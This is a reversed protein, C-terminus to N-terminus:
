TGSRGHLVSTDVDEPLDPTPVQIPARGYGYYQGYGDPATDGVVVLGATKAGARALLDRSLALRKRDTHRSRTVMVVSDCLPAVQLAESVEGVPATDVVVWDAARRAQAILLPLRLMVDEIGEMNSVPLPLLKVNRLKPVEVLGGVPDPGDLGLGSMSPPVALVNALNPRRLDLDIVIVSKGTESFAAALAAAVTTKGDGAVASTIMTVGSPAALDLQVRLLRVPEFAPAPLLWPSLPRANRRRVTPITALVPAAFVEVIEEEDRVPRSFFELGLAAVSALAFGGVLALLLILSRSAGSPSSPPIAPQSISLSPDGGTSQAARLEGIRSALDTVQSATAGGRPLTAARAQLDALSRAINRQVIAARSAISATTFDNALRSAESPSSGSATVSIVDSQGLPTVNVANQVRQLTWGSGMKHAAAIAAQSSNILASATEVNRAPDGSDVVVGIGNFTPDGQPLPTVLVSASAQYTRGGHLLTFAAVATALVTVVLVFKWRRRVARLYPGMAQQPTREPMSDLAAFDGGPSAPGM